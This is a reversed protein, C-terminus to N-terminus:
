SMTMSQPVTMAEGLLSAKPETSSSPLSLTSWMHGPHMHAVMSDNDTYKARLLQQYPEHRLWVAEVAWVSVRLVLYLIAEVWLCCISYILVPAALFWRVRAGTM